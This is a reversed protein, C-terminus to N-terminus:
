FFIQVDEFPSVWKGNKIKQNLRFYNRLYIEDKAVKTEKRNAIMSLNSFNGQFFHSTNGSIHSQSAMDAKSV